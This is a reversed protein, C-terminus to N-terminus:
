AAERANRIVIVGSGGPNPKGQHTVGGGTMNGGGGGGKGNEGSTGPATLSAGNGGGGPGGVGGEKGAGGGAGAYLEGDPEGFERTTTGQGKGPEGYGKTGDEGDSGGTGGPIGSTGGSGGGCGGTGGEFNNASVKGGEASVDGFTTTGGNNGLQGSNPAVGGAGITVTIKVGAYVQYKKSTTTYGGAGGARNETGGSSSSGGGVAFVDITGNKKPTIFGSTYIKAKWDAYKRYDEVAIPTGDDQMIEYDVGKTGIESWDFDDPYLQFSMPVYHVGFKEINYITTASQEGLTAKLKWEGLDLGNIWWEGNKEDATKVTEGKTATVTSGTPLDTVIIISKTFSEGTGFGELYAFLDPMLKEGRM